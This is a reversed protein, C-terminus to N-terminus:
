FLITGGRNSFGFFSKLKRELTTATTDSHPNFHQLSLFEGESLQSSTISSVAKHRKELTNRSSSYGFDEDHSFVNNKLNDSERPNTIIMQLRKIEQKLLVNEKEFSEKEKLVKQYVLNIENTKVESLASTKALIAEENMENLNQKLKQKEVAWLNREILWEEEARNKEEIIAMKEDREIDLSKQVSILLREKESLSVKLMKFENETSKLTEVKSKLSPILSIQAKLSSNEKNVIDCKQQLEIIKNELGKYKTQLHSITRAEAKLKKFTRRALFARVVAQAKVINQIKMKYQRRALYGRCFRQIETAKFNNLSNAFSQRAIFGRGYRQM